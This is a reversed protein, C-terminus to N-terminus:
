YIFREMELIYIKKDNIFDYIIDVVEIRALVNLEKFFFNM